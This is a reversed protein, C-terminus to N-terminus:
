TCPLGGFSGASAPGRKKSIDWRLTKIKEVGERGRGAPVARGGGGAHGACADAAGGRSTSMNAGSICAVSNANFPPVGGRLRLLTALEVSAATVGRTCSSSVRTVMKVRLNMGMRQGIYLRWFTKLEMPQAGTAVANPAQLCSEGQPDREKARGPLPLQLHRQASAPM